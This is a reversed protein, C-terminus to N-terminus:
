IIFLRNLFKYMRNYTAHGVENATEIAQRLLNQQDRELTLGEVLDQVPAREVRFHDKVLEIVQSANQAM